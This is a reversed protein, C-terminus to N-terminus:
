LKQNDKPSLTKVSVYIKRYKLTFVISNTNVNANDDSGASLVCYTIWRLKLKIKCNIM